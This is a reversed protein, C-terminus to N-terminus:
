QGWGGHEVNYDSDLLRLRRALPILEPSSDPLAEYEVELATLLSRKARPDHELRFSTRSTPM